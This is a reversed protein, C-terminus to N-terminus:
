KHANLAKIAKACAAQRKTLVALCKTCGSANGDFKIESKHMGTYGCEAEFHADGFRRDVFWSHSTNGICGTKNPM